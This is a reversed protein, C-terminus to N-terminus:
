LTRGEEAEVKNNFPNTLSELYAMYAQGCKKKPREEGKKDSEDSLIREEYVLNGESLAEEKTKKRFKEGYIKRINRDTETIVFSVEDGIMYREDDKKSRIETKFQNMKYNKINRKLLKEFPILVEVLKDKVKVFCGDNNFGSVFGQQVKDKQGEAWLVSLFKKSEEEAKDAAIERENLEKALQSIEECPIDYLEGKAYAKLMRLLIIDGFRRIGATTHTYNELGTAYHGINVNSYQARRMTRLVLNNVFLENSKGKVQELIKRLGFSTADGDYYIGLEACIYQLREIKEKKPEEHVRFLVSLQNKDAIEGTLENFLIMLSEIIKTSDFQKHDVFDVVSIKDEGLLAEREGSDLSIAGKTKRRSALIDSIQYACDISEKIDEYGDSLQGDKIMQAKENSLKHRSKIIAEMIKFDVIEGQKDVEIKATLTRRDKGEKLSCVGNTLKDPYISCVWEPFYANFGKAKAWKELETGEKVFHAIDAIAIYATYTGKGETKEVYIADDMDKCNEPDITCFPIHTLDVCEKRDAETLEEPINEVEQLVEKPFEKEFGYSSAIAINEAIPDGAFGFDEVVTGVISNKSKCHNKMEAYLTEIKVKKGIHNKADGIMVVETDFSPNSNKFVVEGENNLCIEGYLFKNARKAISTIVGEQKGYMNRLVINVSDGDNADFKDYVYVDGRGEVQVFSGSGNKAILKGTYVKCNNNVIGDSVSLRREDILRLFYPKVASYSKKNFHAIADIATEEEYGDLGLRFFDSFVKETSLKDRDKEMKDNM